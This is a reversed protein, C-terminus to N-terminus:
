EGAGAGLHHYSLLPAGPYLQPLSPIGLYDPQPQPPTKSSSPILLVPPPSPWALKERQGLLVGLDSVKQGLNLVPFYSGWWWGSRRVLLNVSEIVDIFVENKKYRLGESRWSVANTVTTPVRSRGTDLKNSEQTIYRPCGCSLLIHGTGRHVGRGGLDGGARYPVDLVGGGRGLLWLVTRRGRCPRAM